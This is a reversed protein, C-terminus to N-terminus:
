GGPRVCCRVWVDGNRRGAKGSSLHGHDHQDYSTAVHRRWDGSYNTRGTSGRLRADSGLHDHWRLFLEDGVYVNASDHAMVAFYGDGSDSCRYRAHLRYVVM